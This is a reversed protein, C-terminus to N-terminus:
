LSTFEELQKKKKNLFSSKSNFLKSSSCISQMLARNQHWFTLMIFSVRRLFIQSQKRSHCASATENLQLSVLIQCQTKVDRSSHATSPKFHPLASTLCGYSQQHFLVDDCCVVCVASISLQLQLRLRAHRGRHQSRWSLSHTFSENGPACFAFMSM